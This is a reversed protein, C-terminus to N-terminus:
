EGLVDRITALLDDPNAIKNMFANAGATEAALRDRENTSATLMVIPLEKYELRARLHKLLAMGNTEPMAMDLLMLDVSHEGLIELAEKASGAVLTSYQERKLLYGLMRRISLEDDVILVNKM